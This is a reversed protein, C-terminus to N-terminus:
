TPPRRNKSEGFIHIPGNINHRRLLLGEDITAVALREVGISKLHRGV